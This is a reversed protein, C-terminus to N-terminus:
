PLSLTATPESHKSVNSFKVQLPLNNEVLNYLINQLAIILYDPSIISSNLILILLPLPLSIDNLSYGLFLEGIIERKKFLFNQKFYFEITMQNKSLNEVQLQGQHRRNISLVTTYSYSTQSM